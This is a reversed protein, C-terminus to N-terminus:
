TNAHEFDGRLPGARGHNKHFGYRAEAELRVAIAISLDDFLGLEETKGGLTIKARWKGTEAHWHVGTTGSKNRTMRQVNQSNERSTVERLNSLRNDLRDGNIHDVEIPWFGHAMVFLVRHAFYYKAFISGRKYGFPNVCALAETGAYKTNWSKMSSNSRFFGVGRPKWFLM